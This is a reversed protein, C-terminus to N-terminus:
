DTGDFFPHKDIDQEMDSWSSILTSQDKDAGVDILPDFLRGSTTFTLQLSFPDRGM